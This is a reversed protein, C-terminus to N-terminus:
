VGYRESKPSRNMLRQAPPGGLLVGIGPLSIIV